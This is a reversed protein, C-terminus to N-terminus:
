HTKCQKFVNTLPMKKKSYLFTLKIPTTVHLENNNETEEICPLIFICVCQLEVKNESNHQFHELRFQFLTFVCIMLDTSPLDLLCVSKDLFITNVGGVLLISM